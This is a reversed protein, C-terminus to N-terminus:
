EATLEALCGSDAFILEVGIGAM